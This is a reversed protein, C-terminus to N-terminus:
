LWEEEALAFSAWDLITRLRGIWLRSDVGTPLSETTSYDVVLKENNELIAPAMDTQLFRLYKEMQAILDRLLGEATAPPSPRAPMAPTHSPFILDDHSM